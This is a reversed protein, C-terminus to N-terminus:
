GLGSPTTWSSIDDDQSQTPRSGAKQTGPETWSSIDPTMDGTYGPPLITADKFDKEIGTGADRMTTQLDSGVNKMTQTLDDGIDKLNPIDQTAEDIGAERILKNPLNRLEKGTMHVARYSESTVIKRLTRGISQGTKQIDKPNILIFLILLIFMLELPGIGLFDM